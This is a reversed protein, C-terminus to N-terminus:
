LLITIAINLVTWRSVRILKYGSTPPVMPSISTTPPHPTPPHTPPHTCPFHPLTRLACVEGFFRAVAHLGSLQAFISVGAIIFGWMFAFPISLPALFVRVVTQAM